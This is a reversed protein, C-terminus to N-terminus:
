RDKSGDPGGPRRVAPFSVRLVEREVQGLADTVQPRVSERPGVGYAASSYGRVLEDIAPKAEPLRRSLRVGFESPTDWPRNPVGALRSAVKLRRWVGRMTRPRWSLMGVTVGATLLLAILLGVWLNFGPSNAFAAAQAQPRPAGATTASTPSAAATPIPPAVPPPVPAPGRGNAPYGPQPTPEFPIWGYGPFYAEVWTHADSETVAYQGAISTQSGPGFGNVLRTPYGISRLM